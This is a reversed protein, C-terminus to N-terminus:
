RKKLVNMRVANEAARQSEASNRGLQAQRAKHIKKGVEDSDLGSDDGYHSQRSNLIPGAKGKRYETEFRGGKEFPQKTM